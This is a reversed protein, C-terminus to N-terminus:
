LSRIEKLMMTSFFSGAPYIRVPRYQKPWSAIEYPIDHDIGKKGKFSFLLQDGEIKVHKDKLTTLGYSGYIKEYDNNGIRIYTREM